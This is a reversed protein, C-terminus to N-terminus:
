RSDQYKKKYVEAAEQFTNIVVATGQVQCNQLCHYNVYKSSLYYYAIIIHM